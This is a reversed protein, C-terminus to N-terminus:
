KEKSSIRKKKNEGPMLAKKKTPPARAKLGLM